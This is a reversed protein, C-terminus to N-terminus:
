RPVSAENQAHAAAIGDGAIRLSVTCSRHHNRCSAITRM